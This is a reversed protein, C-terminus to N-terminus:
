TRVKFASVLAVLQGAQNRLSEAAAASEEVLAANAQTVQDLEVVSASVREIGQNQEHSAVSIEGILDGVQQVRQVIDGMSRGAENVQQSGSEVTEVSQEILTKIERAAEASRQALMRVEGAVVAFGRGAEGARAAEVAANLALINTQFAVGDILGVIDAIKRSSQTIGQMTDVVRAMLAGGETAASRASGALSNAQNSAQANQRVTGQLEEMASATQQLNSAQAETRQSLDANGSAIESSGTAISDAVQRVQSVIHGLNANMRELAQMLQAVENRGRSDVETTLDGAAVAEALRVAQNLPKTISQLLWRGYWGVAAFAIAVGVVVVWVMTRFRWQALDQTAKAEAAWRQSAQSQQERLGALASAWPGSAAARAGDADGAKLAAKLPEAGERHLREHASTLSPPLKVGKTSAELGALATEFGSAADPRELATQLQSQAELAAAQQRAVAAM